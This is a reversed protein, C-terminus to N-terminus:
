ASASSLIVERLKLRELLPHALANINGAGLLLLMDGPKLLLDLGGEADKHTPWYHVPVDPNQSRLREILDLSTVGNPTEGASYVDMIAIANAGEFCKAFENLLASTRSYRHPQFVVWVPRKHLRATQITAKIETPHHAYDTFISVGAFTGQHDFRRGMGNFEKLPAKLADAKAGMLRATLISAAANLINHRGAAGVEFAEGDLLFSSGNAALNESYIRHEGESFGYTHARRQLMPLLQRVGPDDACAIVQAHDPLSNIFGAVTKVIDDLDKYHDLHDAELNTVIVWEATLRTLSRDSEDAEAVLFPSQGARANSGLRPLDGGALVTPDFGAGILLSAIMGTTTTKGHTGTVAVSRHCKMLHALVESRHFIPLGKRIAEQIEPNDSHVATSVVLAEAGDLHEAAHGIHVQIGQNQLRFVSPSNQLDSGQVVFGGRHCVQAIASMGVGGIGVFHLSQPINM